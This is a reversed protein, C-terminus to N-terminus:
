RWGEVLVPEAASEGARRAAPQGDVAALEAMLRAAPSQPGLVRYGQAMNGAGPLFRRTSRMYRYIAKVFRSASFEAGQFAYSAATPVGAILLAVSITPGTPFPSLYIAFALAFLATAILQAWQVLSLGGIRIHDDLQKYTPNVRM